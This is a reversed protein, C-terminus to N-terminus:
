FNPERNENIDAIPTLTGYRLSAFRALRNCAGDYDLLWPDDRDTARAGRLKLAHLEMTHEDASGDEYQLGYKFPRFLFLVANGDQELQSTEKLDSLQPRKDFEKRKEWDRSMQSVAVIVIGLERALNKLARSMASVRDRANPYRPDEVLQIYDIVVMKVKKRRVWERIIYQLEISEVPKDHIHLPMDVLRGTRQYLTSVDVSMARNLESNSYDTEAAILRAMYEAGSMELTVVGIPNKEILCQHRIAHIMFGTKGMGTGAALVIYNGPAFGGTREDLEKVDFLIGKKRGDQKEIIDTFVENMYDNATKEQMSALNGLISDINGALTSLLKLPDTDAELSLRRLDAGYSALYRKIALQFLLNCHRYISNLNGQGTLETLFVADITEEAKNARLWRNIIVLDIPEGEQYLSVIAQYVAQHQRNYFVVPKKIYQVMTSALKPFNIVSGLVMAELPEDVNVLHNAMLEHNM